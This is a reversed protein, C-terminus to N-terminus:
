PKSEDDGLKPHAAAAGAASEIAIIVDAAPKVAPLYLSAGDDIPIQQQASSGGRNPLYLTALDEPNLPTPPAADSAGAPKIGAVTKGLAARSSAAGDVSSLWSLLRGSRSTVTAKGNRLSSASDLFPSQSASASASARKVQKALRRNRVVLYVSLAVLLITIPIVTALVIVTPLSASSPSGLALDGGAAGTTSTPAAAGSQTTNPRTGCDVINLQALNAYCFGTLGPPMCDFKNKETSEPTYLLCVQKVPPLRYVPGTLSNNHLLLWDLNRVNFIDIPIAGTLLNNNLFIEKASGLRGISTPIVGSFLNHEMHAKEVRSMEGLNDPISGNFKNYSIKLESLNPNFMDRPLPGSFQNHDLDLTDLQKMDGFGSPVPGSLQNNSLTLSSQAPDSYYVSTLTKIQMLSSPIPGELENSYLWLFSLNRLSGIEAPITGKLKNGGLLLWELATLKGISRPIQRM